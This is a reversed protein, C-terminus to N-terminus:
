ATRPWAEQQELKQLAILHAYRGGRAILESPTGMELVRGHELVCV